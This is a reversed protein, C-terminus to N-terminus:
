PALFVGLWGARQKGTKRDTFKFFFTAVSSTTIYQVYLSPCKRDYFKLGM